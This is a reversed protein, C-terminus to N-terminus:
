KKLIKSKWKLYAKYNIFYKGLYRLYFCYDGRNYYLEEKTKTNTNKLKNCIEFAKQKILKLYEEYLVKINKEPINHKLSITKYVDNIM